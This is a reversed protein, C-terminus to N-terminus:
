FSTESTPIPLVYWGEPLKKRAPTGDYMTPWNLKKLFTYTTGRQICDRQVEDVLINMFSDLDDASLLATCGRADRVKKILAMAGAIDGKRAIAEAKIFYMEPLEIVPLLPISYKINDSSTSKMTYDQDDWVRYMFTDPNYLTTFRYDNTQDDFLSEPAVIRNYTTGVATSYKDCVKDNWFSLIPEPRRKYDIQNYGYNTSPKTNKSNLTFSFVTCYTEDLIMDAYKEANDFDRMYSYVRSLLAVSAWYNFRCCRRAFFGNGFANERKEGTMNPAGVGQFFYYDMNNLEKGGSIFHSTSMLEDVDIPELTKMAYTLDDIVNKLFDASSAYVPALTPYEKVYPLATGNFGTVPAAVFLSYLEFHFLARMGTAEAKIMDKEWSYEFEGPDAGEIEQLLNNCNAIANYATSWISNLTSMTQGDSFVDHQLPGRYKPVASGAQYNWSLSSKLGWTLEQGWLSTSAAKEYIGVLATRYGATTAFADEAFIEQGSTVDLWKNCSALVSAAGLILISAYRTIRKM